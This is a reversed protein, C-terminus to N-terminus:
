VNAEVSNMFKNPNIDANKLANRYVAIDPHTKITDKSMTNKIFIESLELDKSDSNTTKSNLLNKGIIIGFCVNPNKEFVWSDVTYKM